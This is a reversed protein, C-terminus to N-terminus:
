ILGVDMCSQAVEDDTRSEGCSPLITKKKNRNKEEIKTDQESLDTMQNFENNSKPLNPKDQEEQKQAIRQNPQVYIDKPTKPLSKDGKQKPIASHFQEGGMNTVPGTPFVNKCSQCQTASPSVNAGCFPCRSIQTLPKNKKQKTRGAEPVGNYQIDFPDQPKGEATVKKKIDTKIKQESNASTWNTPDGSSVPGYGREKALEERMKELRGETLGYEVPRPKRRQGPKLQLNNTEPIWKDVEFRKEIYGGKWEGTQADRYPRSYKDMINGRWFAEWDFNFVDGIRGDQGYGKNREIIHWDSIPQRTFPDVRSSQPKGYPNQGSWMIVNDDVTKSQATKLNFKKIEQSQAQKQIANQINTLAETFEANYVGIDEAADYYDDLFQKVESLDTDNGGVVAFLRQRAEVPDNNNLFEMFSRDDQFNNRINTKAPDSLVAFLSNIQDLKQQEIEKYIEDNPSEIMETDTNLQDGDAYDMQEVREDALTDNFDFDEQDILFDDDEELQSIKINKYKKLNFKSM